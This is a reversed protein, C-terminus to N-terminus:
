FKIQFGFSLDEGFAGLGFGNANESLGYDDRYGVFGFRSVLSINDTLSVAIGPKLGIEFGTERDADGVKNSAFGFGGDIFLRVIGSEFYNYRAYPAIYFTNEKVDAVKEHVYGLQAGLSWKENFEYGIEPAIDFKTTKVDNKDSTWFGVNGGVYVQASASLAAGMLFVLLVIKKMTKDNLSYKPKSIRQM